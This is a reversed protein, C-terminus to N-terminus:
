EQGSGLTARLAPCQTPAFGEQEYMRMGAETAMLEARGVGTQRAWDMVAKFAATGYGRGRKDPLTCVNSVLVDRGRPIGPSPAADRISGMACAVM